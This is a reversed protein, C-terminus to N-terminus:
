GQPRDILTDLPVILGTTSRKHDACERLSQELTQVQHTLTRVQWIRMDLLGEAALVEVLATVAANQNWGMPPAYHGEGDMAVSNLANFGALARQVRESLAAIVPDVPHEEPTPEPEPESAM